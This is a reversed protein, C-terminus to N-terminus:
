ALASAVREAISEGIPISSTAAPSPANCVHLSRPGDVFLFDDVLAGDPMLAQARVGASSPEIDTEQVEPILRQLSRLFATRSWSRVMESWGYSAHKAALSWFGGFTLTEATDKFDFSTKTYGERKFSLVANPGAHISGDIMRTFHVGLFPFSPNPVPYILHKVLYRKEPTLEYYEGRFPVIRVQPDAGSMRAVRDSHLGCCNVLFKAEIAGKTTELVQSGSTARISLVRAGLMLTVGREAALRAYTLSVQRFSTIGTTPLELSAVSHVHPEREKLEEPTLKRVPLGNEQARVYLRQLAPLEEVHTAVIVKGCVDHAIGHEQCFRVMTSNGTRCFFAKYSGPKYYIGSHIVGSNRGTQHLAFDDEKEVLVIRADPFKTSLAVATSLGVIGGGAIAFDYVM